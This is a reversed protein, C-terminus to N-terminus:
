RDVARRKIHRWLTLGTCLIVCPLWVWALESALVSVGRETLFRAIGIPSVEIVQAPAFYRADSFPWLVAIGRGGNTFADLVGHSAMSVFLFTFARAFSAGFCRCAGALLLACLVAFLPAHTFGRHGFPSDYSIDFHFAIVDLYDYSIDFHFAIVDLDPLMSMFMGAVLLRPPITEKGLGLGLALPVATHTMITPM